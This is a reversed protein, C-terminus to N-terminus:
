NDNKIFIVTRKEVLKEHKNCHIDIYRINVAKKLQM